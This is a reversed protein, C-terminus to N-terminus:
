PQSIEVGIQPVRQGHIHIRRMMQDFEYAFRVMRRQQMKRSAIHSPLAIPPHTLPHTQIVSRRVQLVEVRLFLPMTQMFQHFRRFRSCFPGLDGLLQLLLRQPFLM